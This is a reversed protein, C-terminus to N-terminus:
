TSHPVPARLKHGWTANVLTLRLVQVRWVTAPTGSDSELVQTAQVFVVTPATAPMGPRIHDGRESRVLEAAEFLADSMAAFLPDEVFTAPVIGPDPLAEHPAATRAAVIATSKTPATRKGPRKPSEKLESKFSATTATARALSTDLKAQHVLSSESFVPRALRASSQISAVQTGHEFPVVNFSVLQPTSAMLVFALVASAGVLGIAPKSVRTEPSRNKDLIQALRLSAERARHVLAHAMTWGREALSRELLSVLCNAYGTPNATQAIVVDDCAMEREVALHREIWWVAPHFFFLARVVKQILNTWDDWHRLHAFEHRLIISLDSAPLDRLAWSPLVIMPTWLGVAAPVRVQESTALTVPRSLLSNASQLEAFLDRLTPDLDAPNIPTCTRRLERLRWLGFVLRATMVCVTLTWAMFFFLAWHTPLSIAATDRSLLTAAISHRILGNFLPMVAVALLALFWVAFRTRSNQRPLLRLLAWAFLAILLSEPASNLVREAAAQAFIQLSPLIV